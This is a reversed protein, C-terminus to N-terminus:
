YTLCIKSTLHYIPKGPTTCFECEYYRHPTTTKWSRYDNGEVIRKLEKEAEQTSYYKIKKCESDM